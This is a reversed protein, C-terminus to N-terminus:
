AAVPDDLYMAGREALLHVRMAIVPKGASLLLFLSRPTCHNQRDLVVQGDRLVVLQATGGHARMLEVARDVQVQRM